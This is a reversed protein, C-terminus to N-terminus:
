EVNVAIPQLTGICCLQVKEKMREGPVADILRSVALM